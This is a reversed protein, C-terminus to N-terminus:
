GEKKGHRPITLADKVTWGRSLRGYVLTPEQGWHRAREVASTFVQGLHDHCKRLSFDKDLAKKLAVGKDLRYNLTAQSIGYAKAMQRLSPYERGLYDVSRASSLNPFTVADEVSMGKQLRRYVTTYPIEYARCAAVISEYRIGHILQPKSM